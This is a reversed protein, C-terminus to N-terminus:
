ANNDCVKMLKKRIRQVANDVAKVSVNCKQAIESYQKGNLREVFVQYELPSFTSRVARYLNDAREREFFIREPNAADTDFIDVESIEELEAYDNLTRGKNSSYHRNVDIFRNKVCQAAYTSFPINKDTSYSNVASMLAIFGEQIYDDNDASFINYKYAYSKILPSYRQLIVEFASQDGSRMEEILQVDTRENENTHFPM